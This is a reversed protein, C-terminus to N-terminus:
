SCKQNYKDQLLIAMFTCLLTPLLLLSPREGVEVDPLGKATALKAVHIKSTLFLNSENEASQNM